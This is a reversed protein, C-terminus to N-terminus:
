KESVLLYFRPSWSYETALCCWFHLGELQYGMLESAKEPWGDGVFKPTLNSGWREDAVCTWWRQLIINRRSLFMALIQGSERGGIISFRKTM